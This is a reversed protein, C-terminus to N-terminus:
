HEDALMVTLVRKTEEPDSPDPSGFEEGDRDYYDIKWLVRVGAHEFEGFDHEGYPDNAETFEDFTRVRDLIAAQDQSPLTVVGRSFVIRGDPLYQRCEDNLQQTRALAFASEIDIDM